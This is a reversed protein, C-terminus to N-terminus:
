AEALKARHSKQCSAELMWFWSLHPILSEETIKLQEGVSANLFELSRLDRHYNFPILVMTYKSHWVIELSIWQLTVKEPSTGM